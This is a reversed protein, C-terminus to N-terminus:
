TFFVHKSQIFNLESSIVLIWNPPNLLGAPPSCCSLIQFRIGGNISPYTYLISPHIDIDQHCQVLVLCERVLALATDVGEPPWLRPECVSLLETTCRNDCLCCEYLMKDNKYIDYRSKFLKLKITAIQLSNQTCTQTHHSSCTHSTSVRTRVCHSTVRSWCSSWSWSWHCRSM